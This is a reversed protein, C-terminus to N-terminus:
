ILGRYGLAMIYISAFIKVGQKAEMELHELLNKKKIKLVKVFEGEELHKVPHQNEDLNMDIDVHVLALAENTLGPSLVLGADNIHWM